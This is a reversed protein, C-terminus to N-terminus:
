GRCPQRLQRYLEMGGSLLELMPIESAASPLFNLAALECLILAALVGGSIVSSLIITRKNKFLKEMGATISSLTITNYSIYIVSSKIYDVDAMVVVTNKYVNVLSIVVIGLVAVPTALANLRVVGKAGFLLLVVSVALMAGVGWVKSVGFAEAFMEGSATVMTCFMLVMFACFVYKMCPMINAEKLFRESGLARCSYMSCYCFGFFLVGCVAAGLFGYRGYVAFYQMIEQGSAFGAGVFTGIYTAAICVSNKIM